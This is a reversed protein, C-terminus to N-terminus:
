IFLTVIYLRSVSREQSPVLRNNMKPELLQKKFQICIEWSAPWTTQYKWRKLFKGSNTTTWETLPKPMTEKIVWVSTKVKPGWIYLLKERWQCAMRLSWCHTWSNLEIRISEGGIADSGVPWPSLGVLGGGGLVKSALQFDLNDGTHRVSWSGM